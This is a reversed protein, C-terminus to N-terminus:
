QIQSFCIESANCTNKLAFAGTLQVRKVGPHLRYPIKKEVYSHKSVEPRMLAHGRPPRCTDCSVHQLAFLSWWLYLEGTQTLPKGLVGDSPAAPFYSFVSIFDQHVSSLKDWLLIVPPSLIESSTFCSTYFFCVRNLRM